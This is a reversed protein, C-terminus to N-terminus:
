EDSGQEAGEEKESDDKPFLKSCRAEVLTKVVKRGDLADMAILVDESTVNSIIDEIQKKEENSKGQNQLVDMFQVLEDNSVSILLDGEDAHIPISFKVEGEQPETYQIPEQVEEINTGDDNIIAISGLKQCKNPNHVLESPIVEGILFSQGAFQCPKLAVFKAM